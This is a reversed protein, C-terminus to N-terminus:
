RLDNVVIGKELVEIAKLVRAENEPSLEKRLLRSLWEPSIGIEKAIDRYKLNCDSVLMRIELNKVTEGEMM